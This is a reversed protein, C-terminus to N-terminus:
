HLLLVIEHFIHFESIEHHEVHCLLFFFTFFIKKHDIPRLILIHPKLPLWHCLFTYSPHSLIYKKVCHILPNIYLQGQFELFIGCFVCSQWFDYLICSCPCFLRVILVCMCLFIDSPHMLSLSPFTEGGIEQAPM